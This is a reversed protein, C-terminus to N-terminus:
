PCCTRSLSRTGCCAARRSTRAAPDGGLHDAARPRSPPQGRLLSAFALNGGVVHNVLDRVNWGTCPTPADWQDDRVGAVLDGTADLARALLDAPGAPRTAPTHM